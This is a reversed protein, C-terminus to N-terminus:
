RLTGGRFFLKKVELRFSALSSLSGHSQIISNKHLTTSRLFIRNLELHSLQFTDFCEENLPLQPQQPPVQFSKMPGPHFDYCSGSSAEFYSWDRSLYRRAATLKHLELAMINQIIKHNGFEM